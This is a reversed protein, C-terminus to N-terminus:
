ASKATSDIMPHRAHFWRAAEHDGDDAGLAAALRRKRRRQRLADGILSSQGARVDVLVQARPALLHAARRADVLLARDRLCLLVADCRCGSRVVDDNGVGRRRHNGDVAAEDEVVAREVGPGGAFM